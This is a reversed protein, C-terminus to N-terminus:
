LGKFRAPNAVTENEKDTLPAKFFEPFIDGLSRKMWVYFFDSLESYMVNSSYPPDIVVVDISQDEVSSLSSADKQLFTLKGKHSNQLLQMLGRYADLVQRVAFSWLSSSGDIEGYSWKFAFDHRQFVHAVIVRSPHWVTGIANYDLTKDLALALYVRIAIAKETNVERELAVNRISELTTLHVLLQRPNFMDRWRYIGSRRPESTKTGEPIEENPVLGGVEWESLRKALLAEARKVGDLDEETVARFKRGSAGGSKYGVVALQHGMRGAQAEAKIYSGELVSGCRLCKGKGLAISGVDPDFGRAGKVSIRFTCKLENTAPRVPEYGLKNDRDLWWNPSLPVTLHCDHCSVTRVWIYCLDTEGVKRPFCLDLCNELQKAVIGGYKELDKALSSGFKPYDITAREIVCAVPNLESVVVDLGLRYAELPISGGGAFSDLVTPKEKGWLSRMSNQLEVAQKPTPASTFARPYGYPDKVRQKRTGSIVEDVLKRGAVPNGLIGMAKLFQDHPFTAPLSSALVALRSVTLPRRAWWIHLRKDPPQQGTSRERLCEIGAEEIPLWEEILVRPMVNDFVSHGAKTSVQNM